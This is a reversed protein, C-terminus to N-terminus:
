GYARVDKIMDKFIKIVEEKTHMGSKIATYAAGKVTKWLWYTEMATKYRAAGKM